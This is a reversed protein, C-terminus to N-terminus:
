PKGGAIPTLTPPRRSLGEAYARVQRDIDDDSTATRRLFNAFSPRDLGGHAELHVILMTVVKLLGDTGIPENM